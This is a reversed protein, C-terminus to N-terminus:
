FAEKLKLHAIAAANSQRTSREATLAKETESQKLPTSALLAKPAEPDDFACDGRQKRVLV